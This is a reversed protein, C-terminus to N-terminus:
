RFFEGHLENRKKAAIEGAREASNHLGLYTKKRGVSVYAEWKGSGKHFAVGKIGSTNSKHQSVNMMNQGRTALRLNSLRNNTKVEDRHDIDLGEPIPGNFMSWILRHAQYRKGDLGVGIHGSNNVRGAADGVKVRRSTPVKWSLIGTDQDYSFLAKARVIVVEDIVLPGRRM